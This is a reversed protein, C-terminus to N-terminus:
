TTRGAGCAHFFSQWASMTDIKEDLSLQMVLDGAIGEIPADTLPQRTERQRFANPQQRTGRTGGLDAIDSTAM